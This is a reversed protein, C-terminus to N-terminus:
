DEKFARVGIEALMMMVGCAILLVVPPVPLRELARAPPVLEEPREVWGGGTEKMLREVFDWRPAAPLDEEAVPTTSGTALLPLTGARDEAVLVRRYGAAGVRSPGTYTRLGTRVLREPEAAAGDAPLVWLADWPPLSGDAGAYRFVFRDRAPDVALTASFSRGRQQQAVGFILKLWFRLASPGGVWGSAWRYGDDGAFVATKGTGFEGGVLLPPGSSTALLTHSGERPTMLAMGALAPLSGEGAGLWANDSALPQLVEEIFHTASSVRRYESVFYSPLAVIRPVLYFDGRGLLAATRLFPVDKDGPRGIALISVTIGEQAMSRVLDFSHGKGAVEYQDIDEADCLVLVHRIGGPERQLAARAEHLVSYFYIGDGVPSLRDISELVTARDRMEGLPAIWFIDTSNGLIGLRDGPRVIRVVEKASQKAVDIKRPESGHSVPEGRGRYAMSFSTDLALVMSVAAPPPPTRYGSKVPLFAELESGAYGGSGLGKRGGIVVLGAGRAGVAGRVADLLPQTLAPAPLDDLVIVDARAVEPAPALLDAPHVLDVEIGAGRLLGVLPGAAAGDECLWLVRPSQAVSTEGVVAPTGAGATAAAYRTFGVRDIEQPFEAEGSGSADLTVTAETVVEGNRSLQVTLPGPRSAQVRAKVTFPEQLFVSGPLVIEVVRAQTVAQPPRLAWVRAGRARLLRVIEEPNEARTLGDTALLIRTEEGRPGLAAAAALAAPLDTFREPEGPNGIPRPHAGAGLVPHKGGQFTRWLGLAEKDFGPFRRRVSPSDDLVLAYRPPAFPSRETVGLLALVFCAAALARLALPLLGGVLGAPATRRGTPGGNESM